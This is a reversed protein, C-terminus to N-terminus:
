RQGGSVSLLARHRQEVKEKIHRMQIASNTTIREGMAADDLPADDRMAFSQQWRMEVGSPTQRYTWVIDMYEFWGLEIRRAVVKRNAPDLERESVWSWANGQPDPHMTLRFRILNGEAHLVEAMAYETFLEPWDAVDNTSDWVFDLPADIIVRSDTKTGM